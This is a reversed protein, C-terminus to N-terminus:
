TLINEPVDETASEVASINENYELKSNNLEFVKIYQKLHETFVRKAFQTESEEELKGGYSYIKRSIGYNISIENDAMGNITDKVRNIWEEPVTIIVNIDAM